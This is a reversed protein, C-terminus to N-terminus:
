PAAFTFIVTNTGTDVHFEPPITGVLKVVVDDSDVVGNGSEYVLYQDQNDFGVLMVQGGAGQVANSEFASNLAALLADGSDDAPSAALDAKFWTSIAGNFQFAQDSSNLASGSSLTVIDFGGATDSGGTVISAGATGFTLTNCGQTLDIRDAGLGGVIKNMGEGGALIDDGAGGSLYDDGAGGYLVDNGGAGTLTDDGGFGWAYQQGSIDDMDNTGLTYAQGTLDDLSSGDVPSWVRFVGTAVSDQAGVTTTGAVADGSLDNSTVDTYATASQFLYIQGATTSTLEIGDATPNVAISGDNASSDILKSVTEGHNGLGDAVRIDIIRDKQSLDIDSVVVTTTNGYSTLADTGLQTWGGEGADQYRWEVAGDAPLGGSMTFYVDPNVLSTINGGADAGEVHDFSMSAVPTVPDPAPSSDPTSPYVVEIAAPLGGTKLADVVDHLTAASPMVELVKAMGGGRLLSDLTVPDGAAAKATDALAQMLQVPEATGRATDFLDGLRVGVGIADIVAPTHTAVHALNAASKAMAIIDDASSNLKVAEVLVRAAAIAADGQYDLGAATVEATFQDAAQLRLDSLDNDTGQAGRMIEIAADALSLKGDSIVSTWFQLGEAEPQRDFLQQYIEAIRASVDESGFRVTAEESTAFADNIAGLDGGVRELQASWFALGVPDAPRGYYALYFSNVVSDYNSPINM